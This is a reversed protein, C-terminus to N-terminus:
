PSTRENWATFAQAFADQGAAGKKIALIARGGNSYVIPFAIWTRDNLLELNRARDAVANELGFLFFSDTIKVGVVALPTGREQEGSKLLIGSVNAIRGSAFDSPLNFTLEATHSAPLDADTNRRFSMKMEFKPGPINIDARVAIQAPQETASKITEVRWNVFGDFQRGQSNPDEEYLIARQAFKAEADGQPGAAYAHGAAAMSIMASAFAAIIANGRFDNRNPLFLLCDKRLDFM